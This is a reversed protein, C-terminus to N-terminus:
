GDDDDDGTMQDCDIAQGSLAYVIASMDHKSFYMVTYVAYLGVQCISM